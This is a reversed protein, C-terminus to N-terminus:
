VLHIGREIANDNAPERGTSGKSMRVTNGARNYEVLDMFTCMLMIGRGTIDLLNESATPDPLAGSDFGPGEDRITYEVRDRREVAKVQVRRNSYPPQTRRQHLLREFESPDARRLASDVELNGHMVANCLAEM